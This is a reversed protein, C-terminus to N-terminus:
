APLADFPEATPRTVAGAIGIFGLLGMAVLGVPRRRAAVVGAAAAAVALVVLTGTLLFPKDNEGVTRVAFEKLPTPTADIVTGGITILPSAEPRIITAVLEAAAIGAAAALFGALAPRLVRKTM